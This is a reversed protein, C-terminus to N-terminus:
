ISPHSAGQIGLRYIFKAQRYWEKNHDKISAIRVM